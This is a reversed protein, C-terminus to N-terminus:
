TNTSNVRLFLSIVSSVLTAIATIISILISKDAKMGLVRLPYQDNSISIAEVVRKMATMAEELKIKEMQLARFYETNREGKSILQDQQDVFYLM